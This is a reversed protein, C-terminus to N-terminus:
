AGHGGRTDAVRLRGGALSRQDGPGGGAVAIAKEVPCHRACKWVAFTLGAAIAFAAPWAGSQVLGRLGPSASPFPSVQPNTASALWQLPWNTGGVAFSVLLLAAVGAAAGALFRYDKRVAMVLPVLLVLHPKMLCLAFVAGAPASRGRAVLATSAAVFFLLLSVDQVTVFACVAPLSLLTVTFQSLRGGPWVAAASLLALFQVAQWIALATDFHFWGLPATLVAYYPMRCYFLRAGMVGAHLSAAVRAFAAPDYLSHHGVQLAAYLNFFENDVRTVRPWFISLMFGCVASCLILRRIGKWLPSNGPM